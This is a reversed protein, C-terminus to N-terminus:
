LFSKLITKNIVDLNMQIKNAESNMKESDSLYNDVTNYTKEYLKRKLTNEIKFKANFRITDDIDVWFDVNNYVTYFLM